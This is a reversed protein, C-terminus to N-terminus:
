TSTKSTEQAQWFETFWGANTRYGAQGDGSMVGKREAERLNKYGQIMIHTRKCGPESKVVKAKGPEIGSVDDRMDLSFPIRCSRLYEDTCIM